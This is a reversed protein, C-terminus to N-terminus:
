SSLVNQGDSLLCDMLTKAGALYFHGPRCIGAPGKGKMNMKDSEVELVPEGFHRCVEPWPVCSIGTRETNRRRAPWLRVARM